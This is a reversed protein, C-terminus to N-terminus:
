EIYQYKLHNEAAYSEAYSDKSVYLTRRSPEEDKFASKGIQRVSAPIVIVSATYEFAFNGITTIGFPLMVSELSDCQSFAGDGIEQLNKGWNIESLLWCYKFAWRGIEKLSDPMSLAYLYEAIYFAKDGIKEVGDPIRYEPQMLGDPYCILTKGKKDFLVNDITQFEPQSDSVIINSLCSCAGFPNADIQEVSDPIIISPLSACYYFAEEEIRRVSDPIIIEVAYFCESFARHKITIVGFPIHIYEADCYSFANEGIVTVSHGDLESPIELCRDAGDYSYITATDDANLYYTYNGSTYYDPEAAASVCFLAALVLLVMITEKRHMRDIKM